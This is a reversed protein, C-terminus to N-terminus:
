RLIILRQRNLFDIVQEVCDNLECRNTEVVLDPHQPEEFPAQIGTMNNIEGQRALRYLGKPDRKECVELSCKVYCEFYSWDTMLERVFRRSEEYPAIFAAFVLIGADVMLKAVEAIRRVNEKRGEPSLSLDANLGSRVNDGDLVYSRVGKQYLKAKVQHALTSKGSGSLGSFWVLGSKHANMVHRDQQTIIPDFPVIDPDLKM